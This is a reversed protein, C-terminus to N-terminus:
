RNRRKGARRGAQALLQSMKTEINVAPPAQEQQAFLTPFQDKWNEGKISESAARLKQMEAGVGTSAPQLKTQLLGPRRSSGLEVSRYGTYGLDNDDLISGRLDRRQQLLDEDEASIGTLTGKPAEQINLTPAGVMQRPLTTSAFRTQGAKRSGLAPLENRAIFDEIQDTAITYVDGLEGTTAYSTTSPRSKPRGRLEEIFNFATNSSLVPLKINQNNILYNNLTSALTQYDSTEGRARAQGQFQDLLQNLNSRSIQAAGSIEEGTKANLVQLPANVLIDEVQVLPANFTKGTKRAVRQVMRQRQNGQQDTQMVPTVRRVSMPQTMVSNRQQAASVTLVNGQTDLLPGLQNLEDLTDVPMLPGGPSYGMTQTKVKGEKAVFQYKLPVLTESLTEEVIGGVLNGRQAGKGSQPTVGTEGPDFFQGEQLEPIYKSGEYPGVIKEYKQVMARGTRQYDKATAKNALTPNRKYDLYARAKNVMFPVDQKVLEGAEVQNVVDADLIDRYLTRSLVTGDADTEIRVPIDLDDVDVLRETRAPMVIDSYDGKGTTLQNINERVNRDWENRFDQIATEYQESLKFSAPATSVGGALGTVGRGVPDYLDAESDTLESVSPQKKAFASMRVDGEPNVLEGELLQMNSNVRANRVGLVKLFESHGLTKSNIGPNLLAKDGTNAYAEMRANIEFQPLGENVLDQYTYDKDLDLQQERKARQKEVQEQAFTQADIKIGQTDNANIDRQEPLVTERNVAQDLGLDAAEVQQKVVSPQQEVQVSTLDEAPLIAGKSELFSRPTFGSRNIGEERPVLRGHRRIMRQTPEAQIDSVGGIEDIYKSVFDVETEKPAVPAQTPTQPAPPKSPAPVDEARGLDRVLRQSPGGYNPPPSVIVKKPERPRLARVLGFTGGAIGAAAAGIGLLNTLNFGGEEEQQPAKLQNRRFELVEPAMEARERPDEPVPAGTARSYAYFDAPSLAM